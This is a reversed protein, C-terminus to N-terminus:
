KKVGYGMEVLKTYALGTDDNAEYHIFLGSPNYGKNADLSTSTSFCTFVRSSTDFLASSTSSKGPRKFRLNKSGGTRLQSWGNTELLHAVDGRNNYDEFPSVKWLSDHINRRSDKPAVRSIENFERMTDLVIDYEEGSLVSIKGYVHTYGKTPNILIYGGTGRTEITCLSTHNFAIKLAKPRTLPNEFNEMYVQHREDPTTFRSALKKNSDVKEPCSFVFHYGGSQTRQVYLKKLIEKPLKKKIREYLDGSLDNKLDIDITTLSHKGGCILAMGYATAFHLECEKETMPTDQYKSWERITPIKNTGVPIVSYGAKSYAKALKVFNSM